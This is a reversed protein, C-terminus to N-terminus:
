LYKSSKIFGNKQYDVFMETFLDKFVKIVKTIHQTDVGARERILVYILKKNYIDIDESSRFMEIISDAIRRDRQSKFIKELNDECWNCWNFIFDHLTEQYNSLIVENTLNREADVVELEVKSKGSEYLTQSEKILFNRCVITFYSYARGKSSDYSPMKTFLFAVADRQLDSYNTEYRYFKWTNIINETLKMFAPYITQNFLKTKYITESNNLKNFEIIADQVEKGFYVKKVKKPKEITKDQMTETNANKM